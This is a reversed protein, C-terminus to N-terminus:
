PCVRCLPVLLSQGHRACLWSSHPGSFARLERLLLFRCIFYLRWPSIAILPEEIPELPSRCLAELLLALDWPPIRSWVPPRLRLAGRLLRTVLHHRRVSQGSFSAHYASIVAVYVKLTSHTLGTSFRAQLFELVTGVPCNVPDLQHDRCWSTFIRWELAYLKRTSPARSQLITEFVETSLGSAILQAGEPVVGM